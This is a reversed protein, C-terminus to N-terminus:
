ENRVILADKANWGLFVETGIKPSYTDSLAQQWQEVVVGPHICVRHRQVGNTFTTDVVTGPVVNQMDPREGSIVIAEPRICICGDIGTEQPLSVSLRLGFDTTAVAASVDLRAIDLVNARGLFSAVFRNRPHRYLEKASGIQVIEGAHMIAIRDAMAAAEGQDHTVYLVTSGLKSQLQKIEFQMEERLNKDLASLPEDMILLSPNYVASRALAVRQQQGGSLADPYREGMGELRVLKLADNVRPMIERKPVRRMQLPFAINQAVTKHPFLSYNQFVMGINRKFTPVGEISGGDILIRGESAALYGATVGLLTSKGSGSPGIVAFFEGAEITLTTPKLATVAGYTKSVGVYELRKGIGAAAKAREPSAAISAMPANM